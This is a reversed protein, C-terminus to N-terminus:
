FYINYALRNVDTNGGLSKLEKVAPGVNIKNMLKYEVILVTGLMYCFGLLYEGFSYICIIKASTNANKKKKGEEWTIHCTKVESFICKVSWLLLTHLRLGNLETM